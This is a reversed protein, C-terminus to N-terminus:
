AYLVIDEVYVCFVHGMLRLQSFAELLIVDKGATFIVPVKGEKAVVVGFGLVTSGTTEAFGQRSCQGEVDRMLSDRGNATNGSSDSLAMSVSKSVNGIASVKKFLSERRSM